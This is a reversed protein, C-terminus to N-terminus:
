SPMGPQRNCNSIAKWGESGTRRHRSTTRNRDWGTMLKQLACCMASLLQETRHDLRRGPQRPGGGRGILLITGGVLLVAVILAGMTVNTGTFATAGTAGPPVVIEGRVQSGGPDPLESGLRKM